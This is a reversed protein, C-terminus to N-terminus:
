PQPEYIIYKNKWYLLDKSFPIYLQSNGNGATYYFVNGAMEQQDLINTDRRDLFRVAWNDMKNFRVPHALADDIQYVAEYSAFHKQEVRLLTLLGGRKALTWSDTQKGNKFYFTFHEPNEPDVSGILFVRFDAANPRDLGLFSASSYRDQYRDAVTSIYIVRNLKWSVWLYEIEVIKGSGASVGGKANGGEHLALVKETQGTSPMAEDTSKVARYYFEFSNDIAIAKSGGPLVYPSSLIHYAFQSCGALLGCAFVFVLIVRIKRM